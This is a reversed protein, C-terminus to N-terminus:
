EVLGWIVISIRSTSKEDKGKSIGHKWRTNVGNGFTYVDNDGQSICVTKKNDTHQFVVQRAQGFSVAITINQKKQKEPNIASSDHHFPKYEKHSTYWNLRTANPKAGFFHVLRDIVLTFTPCQEKWNKSDDCIMHTGPIQKNGHWLKLLSDKPIDCNEIEKVLKDHLEGPQFDHFVNKAVLVDNDGLECSLKEKSDDFQVRMDFPGVPPEWSETNKVKKNKKDRTEKKKMKNDRRQEDRNDGRQEDRNRYENRNDNFRHEDRNRNEYQNRENRDRDCRESREYRNTDRSGNIMRARDPHMGNPLENTNVTPTVFHNKRCNDKWKCTGRKWFNECLKQDHIFRCNDRECKKNMFDRCVREM